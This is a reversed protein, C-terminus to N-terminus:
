VCALLILGPEIDCLDDLTLDCGGKQARGKGLTLLRCLRAYATRDPALAIVELPTDTFTLRTGIILKPLSLIEPEDPAAVPKAVPEAQSFRARLADESLRSSPDIRTQSRIRTRADQATINRPKIQTAERNLERLRVHARVVGALSNRDTIAIAALGLEAARQVMEEPHSAGTLFTFNTTTTLEAYPM